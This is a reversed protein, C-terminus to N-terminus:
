GAGIRIYPKLLWKVDRPIGQPVTIVGADPIVTTDWVQTDKQAYYYGSLRITAHTIDAPVTTSYGWTGAVSAWYDTDFEWTYSSDKRLKIGYRPTENRPILWYETNPIVTADSDGNTLTTVTLLDRDVILANEDENICSKDFHRTQTAAEFVRGTHAEVFSQARAILAALLADDDLEVIGLYAKLQALTAYAM